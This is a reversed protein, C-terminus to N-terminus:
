LVYGAPFIVTGNVLRIAGSIVMDTFLPQWMHEARNVAAGIQDANMDLRIRVTVEAFVAGRDYEESVFHMTFGSYAFYQPVGNVYEQQVIDGAALAQAVAEHVHHGYKGPGGFRGHDFSLLAPHINITHAPDLGLVRKLWGSLLAWKAHYQALIAQYAEATRPAPMYVFPVGLRDARKRVGGYEIDSVVAAIEFHSGSCVSFNFLKEFGSGGGEKSGSAFVIVREKETM